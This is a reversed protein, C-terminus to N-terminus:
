TTSTTNTKDTDKYSMLVAMLLYAIVGPIFRTFVVLVLWLVRVLTPDVNFYESIGGLVGFIIKHERSKYLKKM